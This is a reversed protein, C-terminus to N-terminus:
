QQQGISGHNGVKFRRRGNCLIIWEDINATKVSYVADTCQM